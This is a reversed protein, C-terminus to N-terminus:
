ILTTKRHPFEEFNCSSPSTNQPRDGPNPVKVPNQVGRDRQGRLLCFCEFVDTLVEGPEEGFPQSSSALPGGEAAGGEVAGHVGQDAAQRPGGGQLTLLTQRSGAM